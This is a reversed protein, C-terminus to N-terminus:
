LPGQPSFELMVALTLQQQCITSHLLLLLKESPCVLGVKVERYDTLHLDPHHGQEEAVEAVQDFFRVAAGVHM